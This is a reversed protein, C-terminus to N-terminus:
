EEHGTAIPNASQLANLAAFTTADFEGDARGNYFGFDKLLEQVQAKTDAHWAAHKNFLSERASSSGMRFATVLYEASQKPNRPVAEGLDLVLAYNRMGGPHGSAAAREFWSAAEVSDK